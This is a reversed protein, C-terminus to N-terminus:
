LKEREIQIAKIAYHLTELEELIEECYGCINFDPPM